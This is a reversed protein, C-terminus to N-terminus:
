ELRDRLDASGVLARWSADSELFALAPGPPRAALAPARSAAQALTWEAVDELETERIEARGADFRSTALFVLVNLAVLAITARPARPVAQDPGLPLFLLM